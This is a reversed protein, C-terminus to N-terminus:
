SFDGPGGHEMQHRRTEADGHGQMEADGHRRTKKDMDRRKQFKASPFSYSSNTKHLCFVSVAVEVQESSISISFKRNNEETPLRYVTFSTQQKLL